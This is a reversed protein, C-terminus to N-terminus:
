LFFGLTYCLHMLILVRFFSRGGHDLQERLCKSCPSVGVLCLLGNNVLVHNFEQLVVGQLSVLHLCVESVVNLSYSKLYRFLLFCQSLPLLFDEHAFVLGQPLHVRSDECTYVQLCQQLVLCLGKLHHQRLLIM